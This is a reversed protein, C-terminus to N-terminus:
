PLESPFHNGRPLPSVRTDLETKQAIYDGIEQMDTKALPSLVADVM